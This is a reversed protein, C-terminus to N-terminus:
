LMYLYLLGVVVGFVGGGVGVGDILMLEVARGRANVEEFMWFVVVVGVFGGGVVVM